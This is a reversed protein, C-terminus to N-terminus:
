SDSEGDQEAEVLKKLTAFQKEDIQKKLEIAGLTNGRMGSNVSWVSLIIRCSRTKKDVTCQITTETFGEVKLSEPSCRTALTVDGSHFRGRLPTFEGELYLYARERGGDPRDRFSFWIGMKGQTPKNLTVTSIKDGKRAQIVSTMEGVVAVVESEELLSALSGKLEASADTWIVGLLLAIALIRSKTKHLESIM